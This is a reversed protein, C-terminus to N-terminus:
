GGSPKRVLRNAPILEDKPKPSVSVGDLETEGCIYCAGNLIVEHLCHGCDTCAGDIRESHACERADAGGRGAASKAAM